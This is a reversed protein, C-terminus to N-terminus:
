RTPTATTPKVMASPLKPMYSVDRTQSLSFPCQAPINPFENYEALESSAILRAGEWSDHFMEEIKSQLGPNRKLVKSMAVRQKVVSTEWQARPAPSPSYALKALHILAQEIASELASAQGKGMDEVEEILNALDLGQLSRSKLLKAQEQTWSYYDREYLSGVSMPMEAATGM